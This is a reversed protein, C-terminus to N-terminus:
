EVKIKKRKSFYIIVGIIVFPSLIILTILRYIIITMILSSDNVNIEYKNQNEYEDYVIIEIISEDRLNNIKNKDINEKGDVLIKVKANIDDLEYSYELSSENRLKNITAKGNKFDM